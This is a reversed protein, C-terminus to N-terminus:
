TAAHEVKKHEPLNARRSPRANDLEAPSDFNAVDTRPRLWLWGLMAFAALSPTRLPYDVVSALAILMLVLSAMRALAEVM